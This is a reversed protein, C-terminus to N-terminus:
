EIDWLVLIIQEDKKKKNDIRHSIWAVNHVYNKKSSDKWKGEPHM